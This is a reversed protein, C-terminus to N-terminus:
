EEPEPGPPVASAPALAGCGVTRFEVRRDLADSPDEAATGVVPERAGAALAELRPSLTPEFTTLRWRVRRARAAALRDDAATLGTPSVHGVVRLCDPRAAARAAVQRMWMTPPGGREVGFVASNPRFPMLVSLRGQGLGHDVLGAFAAEAEVDRGLAQNALYIGTRVPLQDGGPLRRAAAFHALARRPDGAEYARIGDAARATAPLTEIWAAEVLADSPRASSRAQAAALPDPLWAPSERFFPAPTPDVSAVAAWATERSVSRGTRLDVLAAWLRYAGPPRAPPARELSGAGAVAAMGAVVLLPADALAEADFPRLPFEPRRERLHRLMRAQVARTALTEQGTALDLPPMVVLPHVGAPGAPGVQARTVLAEALVAAADELGLAERGPAPAASRPAAPGRAYGAGDPGPAACGALLAALLLAARPRAAAVAAAACSPATTM